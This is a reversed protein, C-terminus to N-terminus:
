NQERENNRNNHQKKEGTMQSLIFSLKKRLKREMESM